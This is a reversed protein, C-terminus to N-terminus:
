LAVKLQNGLTPLSLKVHSIRMKQEALASRHVAASLQRDRAPPSKSQEQKIQLAATIYGILVAQSDQEGCGYCGQPNQCKCVYTLMETVSTVNMQLGCILIKLKLTELTTHSNNKRPV